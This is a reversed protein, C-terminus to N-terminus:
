KLMIKHERIELKKEQHLKRITRIVTEVRLGTMDAIQQRTFPVIFPQERDPQERERIYRLLTLIIHDPSYSSIEKLITSKYRLREALILNFKKHLEFHNKLIEFFISVNLRFLVSETMAIANSPYPFGGFIAPEGFSQGEYFIGQIFEQGDTSFSSMKVIGSKIQFYYDPNEDEFFVYDDKNFHIVQAKYEVLIEEPIM